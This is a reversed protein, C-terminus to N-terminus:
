AGVGISNARFIYGGYEIDAEIYFLAVAIRIVVANNEDKILLCDEGIIESYKTPNNRIEYLKKLMRLSPHSNLDEEDYANLVEELTKNEDYEIAIEVESDDTPIGGDEVLIKFGNNGVMAYMDRELGYILVNSVFLSNLLETKVSGDENEISKIFIGGDLLKEISIKYTNEDVVIVHKNDEYTYEEVLDMSQAVKYIVNLMDWNEQSINEPKDEIFNPILIYDEGEKVYSHRSNHLFIEASKIFEYKDYNFVYTVSSPDEGDKDESYVLKTIKGESVTFVYTHTVDDTTEPTGKTDTYTFTKLEADYVYGSEGLTELLKNLVGVVSTAEASAFTNEEVLMENTGDSLVYGGDKVNDMIENFYDFEYPTVVPDNEGEKVTYTLKTIKGEPAEFTYTYVVDDTTTEPTGKTDTYVFTKTSDNYSYKAIGSNLQKLAVIMDWMTANVSNDDNNAKDLYNSESITARDNLIYGGKAVENLTNLADYKKYDFDITYTIIDGDLNRSLYKLTVIRKHDNSLKVSLYPESDRSTKYFKYFGGEVVFKYFREDEVTSSDDNDLNFLTYVADWLVKNMGTPKVSQNLNVDFTADFELNVLQGGDEETDGGVMITSKMNFGGNELNKIADDLDSFAGNVVFCLKTPKTVDGSFIEKNTEPKLCVNQDNVISDYTKYDYKRLIDQLGKTKEMISSLVEEHAPVIKLISEYESNYPALASNLTENDSYLRVLHMKKPDTPKDGNPKASPYSFTIQKGNMNVKCIKGQGAFVEYKTGDKELEYGYCTISDINETKHAGDANEDIIRKVEFGDVTHVASNGEGETAVPIDKVEIFQYIDKVDKISVGSEEFNFTVNDNHSEDRIYYNGERVVQVIGGSKKLIVNWSKWDKNFDLFIAQSVESSGAGVKEAVFYPANKFNVLASGVIKTAEVSTVKGYLTMDSTINADFDFLFEPTRSENTFWQIESDYSPHYKIRHLKDTALVEEENDHTNDNIDFYVGPIVENNENVLVYKIKYKLGTQSSDNAPNNQNCDFVVNYSGITDTGVTVTRTYVKGGDLADFSNKIDNSTEEGSKKFNIQSVYCGHNPTIDIKMSSGMEYNGTGTAEGYEKSNVNVGIYYKPTENCGAVLGVCMTSLISFLIGRKKM